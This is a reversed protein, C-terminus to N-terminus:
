HYKIFESHQVIMVRYLELVTVDVGSSATYGNHLKEESKGGIGQVM